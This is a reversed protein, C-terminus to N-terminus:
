PLTPLPPRRVGAAQWPLVLLELQLMRGTTLLQRPELGPVAPVGSAVALTPQRQLSEIFSLVRFCRVFAAAERRFRAREEPDAAVGGLMMKLAVLRNLSVQRAQYVVSQGGRAIKHLIECCPHCNM